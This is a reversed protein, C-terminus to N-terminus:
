NTIRSTLKIVMTKVILCVAKPSFIYEELVGVPGLRQVEEHFFILYGSYASFSLDRGYEFASLKSRKDLISKM